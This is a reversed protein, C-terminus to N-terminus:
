SPLKKPPRGRQRGPAPMPVFNLDIDHERMVTLGPPTWLHFADDAQADTMGGVSKERWIRLDQHMREAKSAFFDLDAPYKGKYDVWAGWFHYVKRFAKRRSKIGSRSANVVKSRELTRIATEWSASNPTTKVLSWMAHTVAGVVHGDKGARIFEGYLPAFDTGRKVIQAVADARVKEIIQEIQQPIQCILWCATAEAKTMDDPFHMVGFLSAFRHNHFLPVNPM